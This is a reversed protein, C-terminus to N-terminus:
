DAFCYSYVDADRLVFRLRVSKGVLSSVDTGNNWAFPADIRDGFAEPADGLAYGAIPTGDATQIEVQVSGAASTAYNLRLKGGTFKFPTTIM